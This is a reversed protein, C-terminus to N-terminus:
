ALIATLEKQVSATEEKKVMESLVETMAKSATTALLDGAQGRIPSM